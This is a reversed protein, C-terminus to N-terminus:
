VELRWAGRNRNNQAWAVVYKPLWKGEGDDEKTGYYMMATEYRTLKVKTGDM